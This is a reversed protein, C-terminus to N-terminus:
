AVAGELSQELRYADVRRVIEEMLHRCLLEQTQFHIHTLAGSELGRQGAEIVAIDESHIDLASQTLFERTYRQSASRDEGNWYIRIVGRSKGASIPTVVHSFHIAASGLLFFNPFLGFYNENESTPVIGDEM